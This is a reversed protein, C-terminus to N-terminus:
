RPMYFYTSMRQKIVQIFALDLVLYRCAFRDFYEHVVVVVACIIPETNFQVFYTIQAKYFVYGNPLFRRLMNIKILKRNFEYTPIFNLQTM